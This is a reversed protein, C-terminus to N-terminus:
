DIETEAESRTHAPSAPGAHGPAAGLPPEDQGQRLSQQLEASIRGRIRDRKGENLVRTEFFDAREPYVYGYLRGLDPVYSNNIKFSSCAERILTEHRIFEVLTRASYRRRGSDWVIHAEREFREWIHWQETLWRQFDPRLMAAHRQVLAMVEAQRAQLAKLAEPDAHVASTIGGNSESPLGGYLAAVDAGLAGADSAVTAFFTHQRRNRRVIQVPELEAQGSTEVELRQRRDESQM